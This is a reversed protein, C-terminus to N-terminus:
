FLPLPFASLGDSGEGDADKGERSFDRTLNLFGHLVRVDKYLLRFANVSSSNFDNNKLSLKCEVGLKNGSGFDLVFDLEEKKKTRWFNFPVERKMLEMAFANELLAGSDVRETLSRFDNVIYNRLGTDCFYMKPNKVLEVGRNKYFPRVQNCIYTKELFNLYSKVTPYSLGSVESLDQYDLLNGVLLGMKKVLAGLKYDDILGLIDRVERLFFTNYINKLVMQKEEVNKSTVVRPYGGYVAYENYLTNLRKLLNPSTKSPKYLFKPDEILCRNKLYYTHLITDKYSLFEEFSLPMLNFVFVRGVLYKLAKITLEPASSGSIILKTTNSDYIYKLSKGGESAYQFEDIFVYDNPKIYTAIFVELEQEFLDLIKKDEFSLIIAKKKKTVLDQHMKQLLTTKGCQRPGVIALIEKKSLNKFVTEELNRTIYM